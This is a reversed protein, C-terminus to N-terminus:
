EYKEMREKKIECLGKLIITVVEIINNTVFLKENEEKSLGNNLGVIGRDKIECLVRHYDIEEVDTNEVFENYKEKFFDYDENFKLKDIFEKESIQDTILEALLKSVGGFSGIIFLPKEKRLALLAEELIGPYVGSFGSVKGGMIIRADIYENMENRMSSLNLAFSIRQDTVKKGNIILLPEIERFTAVKVLKARDAVDIKKYLPYALFNTIKQPIQKNEKNHTTALEFLSNVFNYDHKYHIDGGYVLECGIVLLYRAIENMSDQLHIYEYGYKKIDENNSISIGIKHSLLAKKDNGFKNRLLLSPILAPTLFRKEGVFSSFLDMEEDSLPPDPYIVDIEHENSIYTLSLLEPPYSLVTKNSMDLKFVSSIYRIYKEQYVFRLTELLTKTIVNEYNINESIRITRVNSMYPFSRDEGSKLTNLIVIPRNYKKAILIEKRCWERSSYKDSHIVLLVSNDINGKIENEFDYGATIDNADFFADLPTDNQIYQNIKKAVDLGDEKAHSIFLKVPSHSALGDVAESARNVGYMFRCLEHAIFFIIHEEKKKYTELKNVRIYNIRSIEDSLNYANESVAVPLLLNSEKNKICLEALKNVSDKWAKDIVMNDDVLLIFVNKQCRSVNFVEFIDDCDTIFYVPIGIGRNLPDEVDRTLQKYIENSIRSGDLYNENWLIFISLPPAVNLM